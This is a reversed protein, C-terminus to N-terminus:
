FLSPTTEKKPQKKVNNNSKQANKNMSKLASLEAKLAKNEEQVDKIKKLLIELKEQRGL